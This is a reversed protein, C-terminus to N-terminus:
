NFYFDKIMASMVRTDNSQDTQSPVFSDSAKIVLEETEGEAILGKPVQLKIIFEGSLDEYIGIADNKLFLTLGMKEPFRDEPIWGHIYLTLDRDAGKLRCHAEEAIWRWSDQQNASFEKQHWGEGFAIRAEPLDDVYLPPTVKFVQLEIKNKYQGQNDPVLFKDASDKHYLGVLMHIDQPRPILPVLLDRTYVISSEITPLPHDDQFVVRNEDNVFHVKVTLNDPITNIDTFSWSYQVSQLSNGTIVPPIGSALVKVDIKQGAGISDTATDKSSQNCALLCLCLPILLLFRSTGPNYYRVLSRRIKRRSQLMM